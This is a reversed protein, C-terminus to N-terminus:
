KNILIHMKKIKKQWFGSSQTDLTFIEGFMDKEYTSQNGEAIFDENIILKKIKNNTSSSFSLNINLKKDSTNYLAKEAATQLLVNLAENFIINEKIDLNIIYVCDKYVRLDTSAIINDDSDKLCYKEINHKSSFKRYLSAKVLKVPMLFRKQVLAVSKIKEWKPLLYADNLMTEISLLNHEKSNTKLLTNVM